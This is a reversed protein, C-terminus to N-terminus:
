LFKFIRIRYKKGPFLFFNNYKSQNANMGSVDNDEILYPGYWGKLTPETWEENLDVIM